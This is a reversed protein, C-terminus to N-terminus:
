FLALLVGIPLTTPWAFAGVASTILLLLTRNRLYFVFQLLGILLATCDTLVPYYPSIKLFFCNVFIALLTLCRGTSGLRLEGAIEKWTWLSLLMCLTNLIAFGSIINENTPDLGCSALSLGVVAPPLFRQVYYRDLGKEFFNSRLDRVISAYIQGDWGLGDAYALKEGWVQNCLVIAIIMALLFAEPRLRSSNEPIATHNSDTAM